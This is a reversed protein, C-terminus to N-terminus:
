LNRLAVSLARKLKDLARAGRGRELDEAVCTELHGELLKVAVQNIASRMASIQILLSECDRRDALMNKIGRVQGEIRNLRDLLEKELDPTLYREHYGESLCADIGEDDIGYKPPVM